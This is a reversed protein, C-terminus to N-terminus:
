RDIVTLETIMGHQYGLAGGDALWPPSHADIPDTPNVLEEVVAPDAGEPVM